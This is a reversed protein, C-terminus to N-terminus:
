NKKLKLLKEWRPDTKEDSCECPDTNKNKGCVLCIGLCDESCIVKMPFALRVTDLVDPRIDIKNQDPALYRFDPDSDNRKLEENRSLTFVLENELNLKAPGLCRDCPVEADFHVNLQFVHNEFAKDLVCDVILNSIAIEDELHSFQEEFRYSYKGDSLRSINIEMEPLNM